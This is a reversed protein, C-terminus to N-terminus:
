DRVELVGMMGRDEHEAVHCHFVTRGTFRQLPVAIKVREGGRLNVVDRWARFPEPLGGRELVQVGFSHLHFPHDFAHANELEWLELTGRRGTFDTRAPDFFQGNIHFRLPFTADFVLRRTAVATAPDLREVSALVHPLRVPRLGAPAHVTLLSDASGQDVAGNNYPLRQLEFRGAGRLRVLVEAREGPALLLETLAVPKEILGGDTAILHLEHDQLALRYPRATSANLLRLRLTGSTAHLVPRHQGNVLTMSGHKGQGDLPAHANVQGGSLSFDKLIILRDDADRLGPEDDLPGAVVVAGALGAFLQRAVDGHAHPHYWYTGAAGAPVDFEIDRAEGPMQHGFPADAEPSLPLGHLHLSTHEATRNRFHLRVHDGEHLRLTPGPVSGGYTLTSVAHGALRVPSAATFLAARVFAAERRVSLTPPPTLREGSQTPADNPTLAGSAVLSGGGLALAAGGVILSTGKLFRRRSPSFSM